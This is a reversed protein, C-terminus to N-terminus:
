LMGEVNQYQPHHQAMAEAEEYKSLEQLKFGYIEKQEQDRLTPLWWWYPDNQLFKLFNAIFGNNNPNPTIMEQAKQPMCYGVPLLGKMNEITTLDNLIM